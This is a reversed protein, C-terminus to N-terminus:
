GSATCVVPQKATSLPPLIQSLIGFLDSSRAGCQKSVNYMGTGISAAGIASIFSLLLGQWAVGECGRMFYLRMTVVLVTFIITTAIVIAAHSNRQEHNIENSGPAAPTTLSDAANSIAYGFFYAMAMFWYSPVAGDLEDKKFFEFSSTKKMEPIIRCSDSAIRKWFTSDTFLYGMSFGWFRQAVYTYIPMLITMGITLNAHAISGTAITLLFATSGIVIPLEQFGRYTYERLGGVIKSASALSM